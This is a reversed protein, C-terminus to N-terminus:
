ASKRRRKRGYSEMPAPKSPHSVGKAVKGIQELTESRAINAMALYGVLDGRDDVVPLRRLQHDHMLREAERLESDERISVIETSMLDRVRTSDPDRGEAVGRVAIDRDTIIGV